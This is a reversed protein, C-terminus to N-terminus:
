IPINMDAFIVLHTASDPNIDTANVLTAFLCESIRRCTQTLITLLAFLCEYRSIFHKVRVGYVTCLVGYVTCRVGYVPCLVGYVTCLVCYVTFRICYVTCLVGYVM